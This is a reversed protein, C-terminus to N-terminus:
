LSVCMHGTLVSLLHETTYLHTPSFTERVYRSHFNHINKRFIASLVKSHFGQMLHFKFPNVAAEAAISFEGKELIKGVTLKLIGVSM